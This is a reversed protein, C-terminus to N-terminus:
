AQGPQKPRDALVLPLFIRDVIETLIDDPVPAQTMIADHRVLDVPLSAIRPSLRGPDVEGREVARKIIAAMKSPTGAIIQERLDSPSLKTTDFYGAFVFSLVGIMEGASASLQRLVTLVDGRLTGTDPPDLAALPSQHRIAAVILEDRDPVTVAFQHYVGGEDELPLGIGSGALLARYRAASARREENAQGLHPLLALLIAAQIEDLRSNFGMADSVREGAAFGYHRLRRLREALALDTTVVAGGDGVGGLNKTPYFSYAAAHGFCGLARGNLTAGHSQACDEVLALRHREALAMLAPMDAPHGFLHVPVLAMTRPGVAREAAAPDICRTAADVEVFVPIAGCHLIATADRALDHLRHIETLDCAVINEGCIRDIAIVTDGRGQPMRHVARGILGAAGTLLITETM